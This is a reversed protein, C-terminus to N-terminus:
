YSEVDKAGNQRLIQAAANIKASDARIVALIDGHKVDEEYRHSTEAPIGWDILGGAVGGAIAGGIAASIPGMALIPGIGPITLAGAGVILGGIGGLTSGTLTGDTIDDDYQRNEQKKSIINIEENNFGQNRLASVAKEANTRNEFVGIVTKTDQIKTHDSVEAHSLNGQASTYSSLLSDNNTQTLASDNANDTTM